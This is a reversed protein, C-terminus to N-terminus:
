IVPRSDLSLAHEPSRAIERVRALASNGSAGSNGSDAPKQELQQDRLPNRADQGAALLAPGSATLGLERRKQQERASQELVEEWDKGQEACEDELTSIGAEIRAAAADIEKTPDIYGRGPGIWKCEAYAEIADYFDPAGAPTKIVGIDFAEELWAVFFPNAIQAAILGRFALTETWAVALAARASSYNTQSFDMSM